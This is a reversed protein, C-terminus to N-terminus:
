TTGSKTLGHAIAGWAGRDMPNRLCSCQLPNGNGEGPSRELGPISGQRRCQCASEKGSLWWPLGKKSYNRRIISHQLPSFRPAPFWTGPPVFEELYRWAQGSTLSEPRPCASREKRMHSIPTDQGYKPAPHLPLVCTFVCPM